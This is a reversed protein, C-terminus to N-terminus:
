HIRIYSTTAPDLCGNVILLTDATLKYQHFSTNNVLLGPLNASICLQTSADLKLNWNDIVDTTLPSPLVQLLTYINLTDNHTISIQGNALINLSKHIGSNAPTLSYIASKTSIWDWQGTLNHNTYTTTGKKCAFAGVLVLIILSKPFYTTM